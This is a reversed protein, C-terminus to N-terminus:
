MLRFIMNYIILIWAKGHCFLTEPGDCFQPLDQVIMKYCLKKVFIGNSHIQLQCNSISNRTTSLDVLVSLISSLWKKTVRRNPRWLCSNNNIKLSSLWECHCHGIKMFVMSVCMTHKNRSMNEESLTVMHVAHVCLLTAVLLTYKAIIHLKKRSVRAHRSQTCLFAHCPCVLLCCV